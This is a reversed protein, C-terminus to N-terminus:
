AIPTGPRAGHEAHSLMVPRHVRGQCIEQVSDHQISPVAVIEFEHYKKLYDHGRRYFKLASQYNRQRKKNIGDPETLYAPDRFMPDFVLLELEGSERRELGIITMSHGRHQFYLPPLNTLRVKQDPDFPASSFYELIYQLLDAEAIGPSPNKFGHAVCHIGLSVLLAQAEPTGIYKRTGKVGGTEARGHANIGMDWANEILDQIRFISPIKGKFPDSPEAGIMYSSLMQINRYGCFGGERRLKSIHAVCPHCLFAWETSASRTLLQELVFIMGESKVYKGKKLLSVLWDPMKDEHAYQGLESRGLRKRFARPPSPPARPHSTKAADTPKHFLRKWADIAHSQKTSQTHKRHRTRRSRSSEGTDTEGVHPQPGRHAPDSLPPSPIAATDSLTDEGGHLFVHDDLEALTIVEHCDEIPCEVFQEDESNRLHQFDGDQPPQRAASVPEAHRRVHSHRRSQSM